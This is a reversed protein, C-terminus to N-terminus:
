AFQQAPPDARESRAYEGRKGLYTAETLLHVPSDVLLIIDQSKEYWQEGPYFWFQNMGGISITPAQNKQVAKGVADFKVDMLSMFGPIDVADVGDVLRKISYDADVMVRAFGSDFPVGMMRINQPQKCVRDWQKLEPEIQEFDPNGQFRQAIRELENFTGPDPDISTGPYAYQYTNDQLPAYKM